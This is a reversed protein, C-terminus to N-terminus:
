LSFPVLQITNAVERAGDISFSTFVVQGAANRSFRIKETRADKQIEAWCAADTGCKAHLGAAVDSEDLLFDYTGELNASVAASTTETAETEGGCATLLLMALIMRKKM